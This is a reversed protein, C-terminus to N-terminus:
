FGHNSVKIKIDKKFIEYWNIEKPPLPKDPDAWIADYRRKRIAELNLRINCDFTDEIFYGLNWGFSFTAGNIIIFIFVLNM